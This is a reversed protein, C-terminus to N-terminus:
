MQSVAGTDFLIQTSSIQEGRFEFVQAILVQSDQKIYDYWVCVTGQDEFVRHIECRGKDMPEKTLAAIYEKRSSAKLFPGNLSFDDTLLLALEHVAGTCFHEVFKLATDRHSM